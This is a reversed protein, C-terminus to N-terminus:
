FKKKGSAYDKFVDAQKRGICIVLDGPLLTTDEEVEVIWKGQRRIALPHATTRVHIEADAVSKHAFPSSKTITEAIVRRGSEKLLDSIVSPITRIKTLEAIHLASQSIEKIHDILNIITLREEEIGRVRFLMRLTQDELKNMEGYLEAVEKALGKERLFLASYALDVMVESVDKMRLINDRITAM